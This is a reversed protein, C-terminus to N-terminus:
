GENRDQRVWAAVARALQQPDRELGSVADYSSARLNAAMSLEEALDAESVGRARLRDSLTEDNWDLYACRVSAATLRSSDFADPNLPGCLVVDREGSLIAEVVALWTERLGDWTSPDTYVDKQSAASLGPIIMDWDFVVCEPLLRKLHPILSTKGSAWPGTILHLTAM